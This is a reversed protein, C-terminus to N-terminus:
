GSNIEARKRKVYEDVDLPPWKKPREADWTGPLADVVTGHDPFSFFPISFREPVTDTDEFDRTSPAEVRHVASKWRSNTWRKLM